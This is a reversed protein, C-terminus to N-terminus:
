TILLEKKKEKSLKEGAVSRPSCPMILKHSHQRTHWAKVTTKKGIETPTENLRYGNTQEPAM